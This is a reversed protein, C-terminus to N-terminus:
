SLTFPVDIHFIKCNACYKKEVDVPHSSIMDCILCKIALTEGRKIIEYTKESMFVLRKM